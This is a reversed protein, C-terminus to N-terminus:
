VQATLKTLFESQLAKEVDAVTVFNMTLYQTVHGFRILESFCQQIKAAVSKLLDSTPFRETSFDYQEFHSKCFLRFTEDPPRVSLFKKEFEYFLYKATTSYSFDPIESVTWGILNLTTEYDADISILRSFELPRQRIAQGILLSTQAKSILSSFLSLDCCSIEFYIKKVTEFTIGLM